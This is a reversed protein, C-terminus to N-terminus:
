KLAELLSDVHTRFEMLPALHAMPITTVDCYICQVIFDMLEAPTLDIANPVPTLLVPQVPEVPKVVKPKPKSKSKSRAKRLQNYGPKDLLGRKRATVVASRTGEFGITTPLVSNAWATLLPISYLGQRYLKNAETAFDRYFDDTYPQRPSTRHGTLYRDGFDPVASLPTTNDYVNITM